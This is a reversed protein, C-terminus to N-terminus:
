CRHSLVLSFIVSPTLQILISLGRILMFSIVGNGILLPVRMVSLCRFFPLVLIQWGATCDTPVQNKLMTYCKRSIPYVSISKLAYNLHTVDKITQKVTHKTFASNVCIFLYWLSFVMVVEVTIFGMKGFRMVMCTIRICCMHGKLALEQDKLM